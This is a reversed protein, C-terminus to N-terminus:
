QKTDNFFPFGQLYVYYQHPDPDKFRFYTPLKNFPKKM